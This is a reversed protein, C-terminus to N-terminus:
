VRVDLLPKKAVRKKIGRSSGRDFEGKTHLDRGMADLEKLKYLRVIWNESTFVEEFYDLNGIDVQRINQGRLRDIGEVGNFLTPFRHYSLKYLLSDKMTQSAQADMRYEGSPTFYDREKIEDPWIGEEVTGEGGM